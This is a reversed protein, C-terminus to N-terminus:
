SLAKLIEELKFNAEPKEKIEVIKGALITLEFNLKGYQLGNSIAKDTRQEIFKLLKQEM